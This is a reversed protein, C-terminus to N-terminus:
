ARGWPRWRAAACWTRPATARRPSALTMPRRATPSRRASGSSPAQARPLAPSPAQACGSWAARACAGRGAVVARARGRAGLQAGFPSVSSAYGVTALKYDLSSLGFLLVYARREANYLAKVREIRALAHTHLCLPQAGDSPPPPCAQPPRCRLSTAGRAADREEREGARQAARAQLAAAGGPPPRRGGCVRAGQPALQCPRPEHVPPHLRVAVRRGGAEEPGHWVLQARPHTQTHPPPTTPAPHSVRLPLPLTPALRYAHARSPHRLPAPARSM